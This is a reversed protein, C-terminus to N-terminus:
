NSNALMGKHCSWLECVCACDIWLLCHELNQWAGNAKALSLNYGVNKGPSVIKFLQKIYHNMAKDKGWGRFVPYKSTALFVVVTNPIDQLAHECVSLYSFFLFHFTTYILNSKNYM